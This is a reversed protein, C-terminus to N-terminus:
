NKHVRVGAPTITLYDQQELNNKHTVLLNKLYPLKQHAGSDLPFRFFIVGTHILKKKFILEGFDKDNTILIRQEGVAIELVKKDPISKPYDKGVRTVDYGQDNLFTALRTEASEDLIFKM